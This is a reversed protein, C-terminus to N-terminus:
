KKGRFIPYQSLDNYNEVPMDENHEPLYMMLQLGRAAQEPTMYYNWGLIEFTDENLPKEHRGDFRAMRFWEASQKDDTLIMGGRGINLIKKGHFSLCMYTGPIYMNKTFRKAADIIPYPELYYIGRWVENYPKFKVSGGSHIISCPVSVYTNAPIIVEKVELYKCCLFLANSCSDVAVAHPCGTYKAVSNEFSKVVDFANM